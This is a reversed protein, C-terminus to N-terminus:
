NQKGRFDRDAIKRLKSLVGKRNTRHDSHKSHYKVLRNRLKAEVIDVAAFMNITAEEVIIEQKPPLHLRVECAFRDTRRKAYEKLVVAVHVTDRQQRPIQRNLKGIKKEVYKKIDENLEYQRTNIDIKM